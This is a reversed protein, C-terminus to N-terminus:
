KIKKFQNFLFPKKSILKKNLHLKVLNNNFVNYILRLHQPKFDSILFQKGTTKQKYILWKKKKRLKLLKLLEQAAKIVVKCGVDHIKDTLMLRPVFQHIIDGADPENSIYHFTGGAHDPELFYFPWFLTAAGRYRPSIGLHLNITDQPLFKLLPEKILDAGFVITITPKIKKIFNISKYGNLDKSKLKIANLIKIDQNCFYRKEKNERDKFHKLYNNKDLKDLNKSLKPIYNEREMIIVGSVKLFKNIYNVLYKHRSHNGIIFLIKM